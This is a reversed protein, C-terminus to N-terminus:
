VLRIKNWKQWNGGNTCKYCLSFSFSFTCAYIFIVLFFFVLHFLFFFFFFLHRAKGHVGSFRKGPSNEVPFVECWFALCVYIDGWFFSVLYNRRAISLAWKESVVVTEEEQDEYSRTRLQQESFVWFCPPFLSHFVSIFLGFPFSLAHLLQEWSSSSGKGNINNEFSSTPKLKENNKRSPPGPGPPQIPLGKKNWM